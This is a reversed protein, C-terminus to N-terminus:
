NRISAPLSPCPPRLTRLRTDFIRAPSEAVHDFRGCNAPIPGPLLSFCPDPDKSVHVSERARVPLLTPDEGSQPPGNGVLDRSDFTRAARQLGFPPAMPASSRVRGPLWIKPAFTKEAAM